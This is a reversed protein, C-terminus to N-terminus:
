AEERYISMASKSFIKRSYRVAILLSIIILIMLVAVYDYWSLFQLNRRMIDFNSAGSRVYAVLGMNLAYAIGTIVLLEVRLVNGTNGRTAGLIRLTSYYSNRSRMILRIVAYAIFFLVTFEVFMFVLNMTKSVFIYIKTESDVTLTEKLPLSKFGSATFSKKAAGINREDKIYTSVQYDRSYYLDMYDDTNIYIRSSAEPFDEKSIGLLSAANKSTVIKGVNLAINNEDYVSQETISLPRNLANGDKYNSVHSEFIYAQGRPVRSSPYVYRDGNADIIQKKGNYSITLKASEAVARSNLLNGVKDTTYFATDTGGLTFDSGTIGENKKRVAIGSIKMKGPLLSESKGNTDYRSDLSYERGIWKEGHEKVTDYFYSEDSVCLLIENDASPISGYKIKVGNLASVPFISGQLFTEDITMSAGEDILADNRIIEKVYHNKKLAKIDDENFASRDNKTMIVRNPSADFFYENNGMNAYEHRAHKVSSYENIVAAAVFFYVLLLLLFKAPLNFTNRVGLRCQTGAGIPRAERGRDDDKVAKDNRIESQGNREARGGARIVSPADDSIKFSNINSGGDAKLRRDEVVKGDHMTIKRTVYPEAQEYNHTVIIVLKDRSIKSLTHMVTKASESDLNGTPEDAVIIPTNRALARAIAVRQKQGGSLKSVKSGTFEGLGVLDILSLIREKCDRKKMGALLMPLEVNQYVTYSNVLNFDQFINGIYNKRYNEYDDVQFASTDKGAVFMEGEEYTDLGSIVNILTSKGSGSEGTIAVFEGIDLELDVRSFGVSVSNKDAYFKSVKNLEIMHGM